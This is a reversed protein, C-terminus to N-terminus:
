SYTIKYKLEALYQSIGYPPTGITSILKESKYAKVVGYLSPPFPDSSYIQFYTRTEFKQQKRFAALHKKEM